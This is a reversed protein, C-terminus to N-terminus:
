DGKYTILSFPGTRVFTPVAPTSREPDYRYGMLPFARLDSEKQIRNNLMWRTMAGRAVKAHVAVFTPEV